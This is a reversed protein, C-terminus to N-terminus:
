GRRSLWWTTGDPSQVGGPSTGDATDEFERVLRAGREVARDMTAAPDPVYLHVHAQPGGPMGGMMLVSDGIRCEAHVVRGDDRMERLRDAGFVAECFDLLAEPSEVLLYPSLSNYGEPKGTM